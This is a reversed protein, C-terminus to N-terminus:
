GNHKFIIFLILGSFAGAVFFAAAIRVLLEKFTLYGM